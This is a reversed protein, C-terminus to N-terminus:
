LKIFVFRFNLFWYKVMINDRGGHRGLALSNKINELFWHPPHDDPINHDASPNPRRSEDFYIYIQFLLLLFNFAKSINRTGRSKFLETVRDNQQKNNM